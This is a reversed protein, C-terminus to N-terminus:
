APWVWFGAKGQLTSFAVASNMSEDELVLRVDVGRGAAAELEACVEPM